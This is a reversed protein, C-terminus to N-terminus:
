FYLFRKSVSPGRSAAAACCSQAASGGWTPNPGLQTGGPAQSQCVASAVHSMKSVRNQFIMVSFNSNSSNIKAMFVRSRGHPERRKRAPARCQLLGRKGCLQGSHYTAVTRTCATRTGLVHESDGGLALPSFPCSLGAALPHLAVPPHCRQLAPAAPLIHGLSPWHLDCSGRLWAQPWRDRAWRRSSTAPLAPAMM